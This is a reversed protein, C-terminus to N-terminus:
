VVTFDTDTSHDSCIFSGALKLQLLLVGFSTIACQLGLNEM